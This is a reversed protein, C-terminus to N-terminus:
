PPGWIVRCNSIDIGWPGPSSTNHFVYAFAVTTKTLDAYTNHDIVDGSDHIFKWMYQIKDATTGYMAVKTWLRYRIYRNGDSKKSTEISLKYTLNDQLAVPSASDGWVYNGQLPFIKPDVLSSETFWTEILVTPNIPSNQGTPTSTLNGFIVGQGRVERAEIIPNTLRDSDARCVIAFHSDPNVAFYDRSIFEFDVTMKGVNTNWGNPNTYYSILIQEPTTIDITFNPISVGGLLSESSGALGQPGQPGSPGAPGEPGTITIIDNVLDSLKTPIVQDGTNSGSLTTIGLKTKITTETEDGTNSGSLTTIGLKTKITTATDEAAVGLDNVLDSLKAPIIQDGTNSGSLTTIGLKAKITTATEDGTNSGSLTAVSLKAKITAATEDGTNNGALTTIGLKSKITAATDPSAVGLDNELDSLKAPIVQDGTNSGSLTTVDLKTKITAATEDGTNSGSLTTVGLKSKITAGNEDGTNSGSLVSIGLKNKISDASESVVPLDNILDSLKTPLAQDGTNVGSILEIGLKTKITDDTEDGTNMGSIGLVGLKTKITAATEDGTNSGSLTTVGLKAKITLTTEDGTNSGSLSTVGLKNRITAGTEVTGGIMGGGIDLDNVLDSLKTPIIQDGTNSGSLTNIGLKTKISNTTEDGTNSGTLASVGLKAKITTATEVSMPGIPGILGQPGQPGPPGQMGQLGPPGILNNVAGTNAGSGSEAVSVISKSQNVLTLDMHNLSVIEVTDGAQIPYSIRLNVGNLTFDIQYNLIVFENLIVKIYNPSLINRPLVFVQAQDTVTYVANIWLNDKNTPTDKIQNSVVVEDGANLVYIFKVIKGDVSFDWDPKLELVNNVIIRPFSKQVPIVALTYAAQGTTAIFSETMWSNSSISVWRGQSNNIIPVIITDNNDAEISLRDWYYLTPTSDGEILEGLVTIVVAADSVVDPPTLAKLEEKNKVSLGASDLKLGVATGVGKSGDNSALDSIKVYLDSLGTLFADIAAKVSHPTTFKTSLIGSITEDDTATPFNDVSGLGITYKNASLTSAYTTKNAIALAINNLENTVSQMGVMDVLNWEHDIPPFLAPLSNVQEWTHTRPNRVKDSLLTNLGPVDLVWNGGLTQYVLTVIGALQLDLFSVGGYIPRVCARSAGVFQYSPYYDIGEVLQKITNNADKYSISLSNSFFPAFVPVIFHYAANNIPTLIHQEGIVKNNPMTGTHDFDYSLPM